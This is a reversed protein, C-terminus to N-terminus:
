PLAKFRNNIENGRVTLYLTVADCCRLFNYSFNYYIIGLFHYYTRFVCVNTEGAGNTAVPSGFDWHKRTKFTKQLLCCSNQLAEFYLFFKWYFTSYKSFTKLCFLDWISDDPERVILIAANSSIGCNELENLRGNLLSQLKVLFAYPVTRSLWVFIRGTLATVEKSTCLSPNQCRCLDGSLLSPSKVPLSYLLTKIGV